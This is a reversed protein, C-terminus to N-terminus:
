RWAGVYGLLAVAESVSLPKARPNFITFRLSSAKWKLVPDYSGWLLSEVGFECCVRFYCM